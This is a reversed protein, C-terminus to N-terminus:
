QRRYRVVHHGEARHRGRSSRPFVESPPLDSARQPLRDATRHIRQAAEALRCSELRVLIIENDQCYANNNGNQTRAFEDGGVIMPVGQSLLLTALFNRLQRRRLANVSEDDTPGEAGCNWSRNDNHGDQNNEGNAENHKDNYAVTDHLTFGDHATLFNISAYPRRGDDEFLDASGTLRYALEGLEGMDGKWYARVCDRYKGNWEAWLIPFNGSRIAAKM